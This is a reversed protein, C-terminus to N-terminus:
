SFEGIIHDWAGAGHGICHHDDIDHRQLVGNCKYKDRATIIRQMEETTVLEGYENEIRVGETTFLILWDSLNNIEESPYVHLSFAWGISSKGIHRDPETRKCHPCEASKLYYNTGM